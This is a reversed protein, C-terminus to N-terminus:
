KGNESADGVQLAFVISCAGPIGANEIIGSLKAIPLAKFSQNVDKNKM